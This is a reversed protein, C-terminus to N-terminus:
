YIKDMRSHLSHVEQIIICENTQAISTVSGHLWRTGSCTMPQQYQFIFGEDPLMCWVAFEIGGRSVPSGEAEPQLPVVGWTLGAETQLTVWSVNVVASLSVEVLCCM